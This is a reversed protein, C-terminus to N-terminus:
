AMASLICRPVRPISIIGEAPSLSYLEAKDGSYFCIRSSGAPYPRDLFLKIQEAGVGSCFLLVGCAEARACCKKNIFDRCLEAKADSSLSM